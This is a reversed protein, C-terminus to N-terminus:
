SPDFISVLPKHDTILLFMQGYCYTLINELGLYIGVTEKNIQGYKWDTKILSRFAFTIPRELLLNIERSLRREPWYM